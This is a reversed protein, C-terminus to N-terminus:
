NAGTVEEQCILADTHIDKFEIRYHWNQHEDTWPPRRTGRPLRHSFALYGRDASRPELNVPLTLASNRFSHQSQEWAVVPRDEPPCWRQAGGESLMWLDATIAVRLGHSQNAISVDPLIVILDNDDAVHAYTGHVAISVSPRTTLAAVKQREDTWLEHEGAWAKYTAILLFIAALALSTWLIGQRNKQTCTMWIGVSTLGACSMLAWWHRLLAKVFLIILGGSTQAKM